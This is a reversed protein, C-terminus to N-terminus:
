KKASAKEQEAAEDAVRLCVDSVAAAPGKRAAAQKTQPAGKIPPLPAANTPPTKVRTWKQTLCMFDTFLCGELDLTTEDALSVNASYMKGNQSNYIEGQWKNPGKQALGMLVPIGLTPRGKKALDPNETDLGGPIKEWVVIGWLKGSCIDIRINAYGDKVLWDGVPDAAMASSTTLALIAASAFVNRM